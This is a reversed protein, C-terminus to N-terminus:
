VAGGSLLVAQASAYAALSAILRADAPAATAASLAQQRGLDREAKSLDRLARAETVAAPQGSTESAAAPPTATPTTGILAAVHALHADVVPQLRARLAPHAHAVDAAQTALAAELDAAARRPDSAPSGTPGPSIAPAAPSTGSTCAALLPAGAAAALVAVGAGLVRRREVAPLM